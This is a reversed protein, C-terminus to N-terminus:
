DLLLILFFLGAAGLLVGILLSGIGIEDDEDEEGEGETVKQEATVTEAKVKEDSVEVEPNATPKVGDKKTIITGKANVIEGGDAFTVGGSYEKTIEVDYWTQISTGNEYLTVQDAFASTSLLLFLALIHKM